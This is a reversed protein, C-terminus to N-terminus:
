HPHQIMSAPIHEVAFWEHKGLTKHRLQVYDSKVAAEASFIMVGTRRDTLAPIKFRPSLELNEWILNSTSITYLKANEGRNRRRNLEKVAWERDPTLSVFM